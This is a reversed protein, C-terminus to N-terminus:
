AKKACFNYATKPHQSACVDVHQLHWGVNGQPRQTVDTESFMKLGQVSLHYAHVNLIFLDELGSRSPAAQFKMMIWLLPGHVPSLKETPSTGPFKNRYTASSHAHLTGQSPAQIPTIEACLDRIRVPLQCFRTWLHEMCQAPNRERWANSACPFLIIFNKCCCSDLQILLQWM